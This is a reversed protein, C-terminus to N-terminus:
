KGKTDIYKWFEEDKQEMIWCYLKRRCRGWDPDPGEPGCVPCTNCDHALYCMMLALKAPDATLIIELNIM